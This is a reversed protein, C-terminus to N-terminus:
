ETKITVKADKLGHSIAKVDIRGKTTKSRVILMAKGYFLNVTKSRFSTMSQPNGNGVGAM